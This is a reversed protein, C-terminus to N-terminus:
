MIRALYGPMASMLSAMSCSAIGPHDQGLWTGLARSGDDKTLSTTIRLFDDHVRVFVRAVACTARTFRDPLSFADHLLVDGAYILPVALGDRRPLREVGLRLPAGLTAAGIGAPHPDALPYFFPWLVSRTPHLLGVTARRIGLGAVATIRAM